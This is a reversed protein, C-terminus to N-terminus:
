AMPDDREQREREQQPPAYNPLFKRVVNGAIRGGNRQAYDLLGQVLFGGVLSVLFTLMVAAPEGVRANILPHSLGSLTSGAAFIWLTDRLGRRKATASLLGGMVVALPAAIESFNLKM